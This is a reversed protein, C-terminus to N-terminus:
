VVGASIVGAAAPHLASASALADLLADIDAEAHAASLTIRLRASGAAVTPPRIAPVHFGQAELSQALSAARATDGVLLPQIPTSSPLLPLGREAAGRRFHEIHAALRKRHQDESRAIRVAALAASALAPPMATTYIYSRAFQLLAEIADVSGLVAAGFCGIAKGLTVVLLPVEAVGLGAHDVAGRGHGGVVGLGHADDVMLTAHERTCLAALESLPAIDGDMSFVGDTALVAGADPRAALQRAAAAADAHPYRLLEAGSLRAGDILSAHNLRDQVCVDGRGLVASLVGINAMMGTSFLLARPYGLWDALEEELAQHPGRHGGLLHAAGAGVGWTESAARLATAIRPDSALGLYDNSAFSLLRAGGVTVQPGQAATVTRLRRLLGAQAREAQAQALRDILSPRTM